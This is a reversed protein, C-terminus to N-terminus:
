EVLNRDRCAACYGCPVDCATVCSWTEEFAIGVEPARKLVEAKTLSTLPFRVPTLISKAAPWRRDATFEVVQEATLGLAVSRSGTSVALCSCLALLTLPGIFEDVQRAFPITRSSRHEVFELPVQWRECFDRAAEFEASSSPGHMDVHMAACRLGELQCLRTAVISDVGGSLCMIVDFGDTNQDLHIM